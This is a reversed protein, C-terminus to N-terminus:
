DDRQRRTPGKRRVIGERTLNEDADPSPTFLLDSFQDTVLRNIEEPMTRDRSRLGAEVHALPLCLKACVLAAAVTSNVDGYVITWDPKRERLIPELGLMVHATQEAQTGSGVALNVDPEPMALSDFSSM